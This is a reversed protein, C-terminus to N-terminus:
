RATVAKEKPTASNRSMMEEERRRLGSDNEVFSCAVM